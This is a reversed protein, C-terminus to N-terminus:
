ANIWGRVEVNYTTEPNLGTIEYPSALVDDDVINGNVRVSYGDATGTTEWGVTATTDTIEVLTLSHVYPAGVMFDAYASTLPARPTQAEDDEHIGYYQAQPRDRDRFYAALDVWPTWDRIIEHSRQIYGATQETNNVVHSEEYWGWETNWVRADPFGQRALLNIWALLTTFNSDWNNSVEPDKGNTYPHVGFADPVVNLQNLVEDLWEHANQGDGPGLLWLVGATSVKIDSSEAKIAQHCANYWVGYDTGSPTPSWFEFYNSENGLEIYDVSPRFGPEGEIGASVKYRDAFLGIFTACHNVWETFEPGTQPVEHTDGNDNAWSPWGQLLMLPSLGYAALTMLWADIRLWDPPTQENPQVAWWPITNRSMVAGLNAVKKVTRTWNFPDTWVPVGAGPANPLDGTVGTFATGDIGTYECHYGGVILQGSPPFEGGIADVEIRDLTSGLVTNAVQSEDSMLGYYFIDQHFGYMCGNHHNEPYNLNAAQYRETEESASLQRDWVALCATMSEWDPRQSRLTLTGMSDATQASTTGTDEQGNVVIRASEHGGNMSALIHYEHWAATYLTATEAVVGLSSRIQFRVGSASVMEARLQYPTNDIINVSGDWPATMNPRWVTEYTFTSGVDPINSVEVGSSDGSRLLVGRSTGGNLATRGRLTPSGLYTANRNNGTLDSSTTGSEEDFELAVLASKDVADQAWASLTEVAITYVDPYTQNPYSFLFLTAPWAGGAGDWTQTENQASFDELINTYSGGPNREIVRRGVELNDVFKIFPALYLDNNSRRTDTWMKIKYNETLENPDDQIYRDYEAAAYLFFEEVMRQLSKDIGPSESTALGDQTVFDYDDMDGARARAEPAILLGGLNYASYTMGRHPDNFTARNFDGLWGNSISFGFKVVEQMYVKNRNRQEDLSLGPDAGTPLQYDHDRLLQEILGCMGTIQARRNNYYRGLTTMQGINLSSDMWVDSLDDMDSRFGYTPPDALRDGGTDNLVTELARETDWHWYDMAGYFWDLITARNASSIITQQTEEELAEIFSFGLVFANMWECIQFGPNQDSIRGGYAATPEDPESATGALGWRSRDTFDLLPENAHALIDDVVDSALNVDSEVLAYFAIDVIRKSTNYEDAQSLVYPDNNPNGYVRGVSDTHLESSNWYLYQNTQYGSVNNSIRDWDGPSNLGDEGDSVFPGVNKRSRWEALEADTVFLGYRKVAM